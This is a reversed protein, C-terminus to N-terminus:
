QHTKLQYKEVTQEEVDMGLSSAKYSASIFYVINEGSYMYSFSALQSMRDFEMNDFNMGKLTGMLIKVPDIGFEERVIQYAEEENEELIVMNEDSSNVKTVEREGVVSKMFRVVREAGGLSTVGIVLVLVFVAVLGGYFRFSKRRRVASRETGKKEAVKKEETSAGAAEVNGIEKEKEETGEKKENEIIKQGIRLARLEESSLGPYKKRWEFEEIQGDLKKRIDMKLKEPMVGGEAENERRIERADRELEKKIFEELLGKKEEM